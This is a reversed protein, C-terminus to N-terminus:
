IGYRRAVWNDLKQLYADTPKSTFWALFAISVDSSESAFASNSGISLTDINVAMGNTDSVTSTSSGVKLNGLTGDAWLMFRNQTTSPVPGNVTVTGARAFRNTPFASDDWIGMRNSTANVGNGVYRHEGGSGLVNRARMVVYCLPRSGSAFLTAGAAYRMCRTGGTNACQVVPRGNFNTGDAGFTPRATTFTFPKAAYRGTWTDADGSSLAVSGDDSCWYDLMSPDIPPRANAHKRLRSTRHAGAYGV